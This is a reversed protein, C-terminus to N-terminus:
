TQHMRTGCKCYVNPNCSPGFGTKGCKPCIYKGAQQSFTVKGIWAENEKKKAM